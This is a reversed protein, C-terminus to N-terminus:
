CASPDESAVPEGDEMPVIAVRWCTGEVDWQAPVQRSELETIIAHTVAPTSCDHQM